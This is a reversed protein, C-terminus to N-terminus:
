IGPWEGALLRPVLPDLIRYSAGWLRRRGIRFFAIEEPGALGPPQFVARGRAGARALARLKVEIVGVIEGEQCRWAAPPTIRALFPTIRFGSVITEVEPLRTLVEVQAAPLGIEERTERLATALADRDGPECKGGPFALQGGHPGGAGRLVVALRLEGDGGRFVPVIVAAPRSSTRPSPMASILRAPM